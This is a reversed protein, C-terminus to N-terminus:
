SAQYSRCWLTVTNHLRWAALLAAPESPVVVYGTVSTLRPGAQRREVKSSMQRTRECSTMMFARFGSRCCHKPPFPTSELESCLAALLRM